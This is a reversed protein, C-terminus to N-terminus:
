AQQHPNAAAATARGYQGLFAQRLRVAWGAYGFRREIWSRVYPTVWSRFWASLPGDGLKRRLEFLERSLRATASSSIGGLLFTTLVAPRFEFRVQRRVMAFFQQDATYRYQVPYFGLREHVTRRLVVSHHPWITRATPMFSYLREGAPTAMDQAFVVADLDSGKMAGLLAGAGPNVLDGGPMMVLWRGRTAAVGVNMAGFVGTKDDRAYVLAVAPNRIMGRVAAEGLPVDSGDIVVVECSAPAEACISDLSARLDDPNNRMPLIFSFDVLPELHSLLAPFSM